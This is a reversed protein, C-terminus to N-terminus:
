GTRRAARERVRRDSDREEGRPRRGHDPRGPLLHREAPRPHLIGLLAGLVGFPVGLLVAFPVSWSEYQAALVLFVIILGLVFVLAADGSSAREQIRSGRTRCASGRRRSSRRSSSTSKAAAARRSSRGPKPPGTFQASTFGNFRTCSRRRAATARRRSRRSAPDDRRRQRARLAPRHGRADPPVAGAGRGARPVDQRVPQLRQHLSDLPVGADHRVSRRPERRAGQGGRSRRHRVAAARERPFELQARGVRPASEGGPPLGARAARVRSHGAAATRCTSRSAPRRASARCKRCPQLRVGHADRIGFLKGNVRAAIADLADHKSRARGVAQRQRLDDRRQDRESAARSHRAGRARRHERVAPETACSRRSRRSSAETRQLSAADPLQVSLAMYGKDETPIFATPIKCGCCARRAGRCCCSCARAVRGAPRARPGRRRRLRGDSARLGRNFWGFFGTTHAENSEKLLLACLAPTLTLAVIGSLVVAIVITM